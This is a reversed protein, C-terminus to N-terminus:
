CTQEMAASHSCWYPPARSRVLLQWTTAVPVQSSVAIAATSDISINCGNNTCTDINQKYGPLKYIQMTLGKCHHIVCSSLISLLTVILIKNIYPPQQSWFASYINWRGGPWQHAMNLYHWQLFMPIQQKDSMMLRAALPGHM